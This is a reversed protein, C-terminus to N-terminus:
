GSVLWLVFHAQWENPDSMEVDTISDSDFGEDDGAILKQMEGARFTILEEINENMVEKCQRKSSPGVEANTDAQHKPPKGVIGWCDKILHGKKGCNKCQVVKKLYQCDQINHNHHGCNSCYM